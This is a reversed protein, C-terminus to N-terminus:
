MLLLNQTERLYWWLILFVDHHYFLAIVFSGSYLMCFELRVQLALPFVLLLFPNRPNVFFM